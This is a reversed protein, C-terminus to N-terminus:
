LTLEEPFISPSLDDGCYENNPTLLLIADKQPSGVVKKPQYASLSCIVFSISSIWLAIAFPIGVYVNFYLAFVSRRQAFPKELLRNIDSMHIVEM